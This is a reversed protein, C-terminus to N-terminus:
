EAMQELHKLGNADCKIVCPIIEGEALIDDINWFDTPASADCSKNVIGGFATTTDSYGLM